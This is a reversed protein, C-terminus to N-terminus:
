SWFDGDDGDRFLGSAHLAGRAGLHGCRRGRNDPYIHSSHITSACAGSEVLQMVATATFTKSHSAIRFLHAPTLETASAVDRAM